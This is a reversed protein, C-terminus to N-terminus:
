KIKRLASSKHAAIHDSKDSKIEYQPDEKSAHHKYGKYDFDSTHVKIIKGSVRGAESNWSVHDGKKFSQAMTKFKDIMLLNFLNIPFWLTGSFFIKKEVLLSDDKRVIM